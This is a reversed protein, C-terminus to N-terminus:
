VATCECCYFSTILSTYLAQLVSTCATRLDILLRNNVAKHLLLTHQQEYKATLQGNALLAALLHECKISMTSCALMQDTNM